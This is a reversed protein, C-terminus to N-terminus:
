KIKHTRSGKDLFYAVKFKRADEYNVKGFKILVKQFELRSM